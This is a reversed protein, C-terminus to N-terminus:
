LQALHYRIQLHDVLLTPHELYTCMSFAQEVRMGSAPAQHM